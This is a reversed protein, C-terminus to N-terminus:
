DDTELSFGPRHIVPIVIEYTTTSNECIWVHVYEGSMFYVDPISIENGHYTNFLIVSKDKDNSIHAEFTEPLEIGTIILNQGRDYQYVSKTYTKNSGDGFSAIIAM